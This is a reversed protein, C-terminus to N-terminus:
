EHKRSQKLHFHRCLCLLWCMLSSEDQESDIHKHGDLKVQIIVDGQTKSSIATQVWSSLAANYWYTQTCPLQRASYRNTKTTKKKKKMFDNKDARAALAVTLPPQHLEARSNSESRDATVYHGGGDGATPATFWLAAARRPALAAERSEAWGSLEDATWVALARRDSSIKIVM